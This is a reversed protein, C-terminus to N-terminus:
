LKNFFQNGGNGVKGFEVRIQLSKFNKLIVVSIHTGFLLIFHPITENM